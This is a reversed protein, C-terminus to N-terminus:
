GKFHSTGITFFQVRLINRNVKTLLKLMVIKGSFDDLFQEIM